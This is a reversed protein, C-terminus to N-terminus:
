GHVDNSCSIQASCLVRERVAFYDWIGLMLTIKEYSEYM